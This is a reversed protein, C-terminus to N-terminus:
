EKDNSICDILLQELGKHANSAAIVAETLSRIIADDKFKEAIQNLQQITFFDKSM